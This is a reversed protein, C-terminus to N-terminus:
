ISSSQDGATIILRDVVAKIHHTFTCFRIELWVILGRLCPKVRPSLIQFPLVM